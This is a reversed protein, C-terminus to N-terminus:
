SHLPGCRGPMASGGLWHKRRAVLACTFLADDADDAKITERGRGDGSFAIEHCCYEKGGVVVPFALVEGGRQLFKIKLAGELKSIWRNPISWRRGMRGIEDHDLDRESYEVEHRALVRPVTELESKAFSFGNLQLSADALKAILLM